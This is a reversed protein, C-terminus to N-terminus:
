QTRRRFARRAQQSSRQKPLPYLRAACVRLAEQTAPSIAFEKADASRLREVLWPSLRSPDYETRELFPTLSESHGAHQELLREVADREVPELGDLIASVDESRFATLDDILRRLPREPDPKPM